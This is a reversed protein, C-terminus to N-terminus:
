ADRGDKDLTPLTDYVQGTREDVYITEGDHGKMHKFSREWAIGDGFVDRLVQAPDGEQEPDREQPETREPGTREAARQGHRAQM